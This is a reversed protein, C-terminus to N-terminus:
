ATRRSREELLQAYLRRYEDAMARASYEDAVLQQAARGLSERLSTDGLLRIVAAALADPDGPPVLLGTDGDRIVQPVAGVSTAAIPLRSAMGELLAIPLGEIRSSSVLVDISSYFGPMDNTRGLLSVSGAIGLQAILAELAPREPGDGVILFRTEPYQRLVVAAAQLFLDVGKEPSLRAVLGVRLSGEAPRSDERRQSAAAFPTLDVGNRILHIRSQPVGARLLRSRVEESVAVVADFRRLLWRDIAGYIRLATDNDIWNHCTSLLPPASGHLAWWAYVDAKYGHAHVLDAGTEKVLTRIKAPMSRDLQGLCPILYSEVGAREAAEHLQLNPSASNSFVGIMSKDGPHANLAGSLNLIVAEAGYMGGSSILHLVKM